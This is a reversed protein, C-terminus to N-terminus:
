EGTKLSVNFHIIIAMFLGIAVVIDGISIVTKYPINLFFIDSLFELKPNEFIGHSLSKGSIIIDARKGGVKLISELNVPMKKNLLIPMANFLFGFGMFLMGLNQFNLILVLSFLLLYIAHFMYYYKVSLWTIPGLDVNTTIILFLDIIIGIVLIPFYKIKLNKYNNQGYLKVFIVGLIISIFIM